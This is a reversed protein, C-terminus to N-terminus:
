ARYHNAKNQSCYHQYEIPKILFIIKISQKFKFNEPIKENQYINLNLKLVNNHKFVKM